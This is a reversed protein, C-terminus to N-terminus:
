AANFGPRDPIDSPNEPNGAIISFGDYDVFVSIVGGKAPSLDVLSIEGLHGRDFHRPSESTFFLRFALDLYHAKRITKFYEGIGLFEFLSLPTM